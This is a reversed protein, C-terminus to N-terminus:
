HVPEAPPPTELWKLNFEYHQRSTILHVVGNEAQWISNYGGPEASDFGMVFPRGDMTEVETGPGDDSVLRVNSWTEGDDHSVAAFMGTVMRERGSVDTIPMPEPDRRNGTFSVLCLPGERLRLLLPRQGGGVPPFGSASYKWTRGMDSSISRPM